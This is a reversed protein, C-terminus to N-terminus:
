AIEDTLDYRAIYDAFRERIANADLGFAEPSYVHDHQRRRESDAEIFVQMAVRAAETLEWGLDRYIEEAADLPDRVLDAHRVHSVRGPLTEGFAHAPELTETVWSGMIEKGIGRPYVTNSFIARSYAYLSCMSSLAMVPDRHTFIIRADPFLELITKIYVTHTPDKLIFRKGHSRHHQVLKLQQLYLRYGIRPDEEQLWEIYSPVHYQVNFQLTRFVNTFLAVCEEAQDPAMPHIAQYYPSIGKLQKLMHAVTDYRNDRGREPPVPELSEWYPMTRSDPDQALLTHLFTTGSRMWGVIFVPTPLETELIEPKDCLAKEIRLHAGAMRLCDERAGWRGVFSLAADDNLSRVLAELAERTEPTPDGVGKHKRQARAWYDDASPLAYRPLLHGLRNVARISWPQVGPADVFQEARIM